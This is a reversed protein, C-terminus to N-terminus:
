HAQDLDEWMLAGHETDFIAKGVWGHGCPDVEWEPLDVESAQGRGNLQEIQEGCVPCPTDKAHLHWTMPVELRAIRMPKAPWEQNTMGGVKAMDAVLSWQRVEELPNVAVIVCPRFSPATSRTKGARM